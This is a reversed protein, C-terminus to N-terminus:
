IGIDLGLPPAEPLTVFFPISVHDILPANSVDFVKDCFIENGFHKLWIAKTFSKSFELLHNAADTVEKILKEQGEVFDDIGASKFIGQIIIVDSLFFMTNFGHQSFYFCWAEDLGTDDAALKFAEELEDSKPHHYAYNNRITTLLNSSGFQRKLALLSARGGADLLPSYEKGTPNAIFRREVLRWGENVAGVLMRVLMQSQVGTTHQDVESNQEANLSFIVLKQLMAIQNSVYGLLLFLVREDPSLARLRDKPIPIRLVKLPQVATM